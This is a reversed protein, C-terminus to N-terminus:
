QGVGQGQQLRAVLRRAEDGYGSDPAERELRGYTAAAEERRGLRHYTKALYFLAHPRYWSGRPGQVAFELYRRAEEYRAARSADRGRRWASSGLNDQLEKYTQPPLERLAEVWPDGSRTGPASQTAATPTPQPATTTQARAELDAIHAALQQRTTRQGNWDGTLVGILLAAGAATTVVPWLRRPRRIPAAPVAPPAEAVTPLPAVTAAPGRASLLPHDPDFDLLVREIEEDSAHSDVLSRLRIATAVVDDAFPALEAPLHEARPKAVSSIPGQAGELTALLLVFAALDNDARVLRLSEGAADYAAQWRGEAAYQAAKASLTEAAGRVHLLLSADLGCDSCRGGDEIPKM